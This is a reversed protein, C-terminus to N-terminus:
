RKNKHFHVLRDTTIWVHDTQPLYEYMMRGASSCLQMFCVGLTPRNNKRVFKGYIRLILLDLDTCLKLHHHNSNDDLVQLSFPIRSRLLLNCCIKRDFVHKFRDGHWQVTANKETVM